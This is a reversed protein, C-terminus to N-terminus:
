DYVPRFGKQAQGGFNVPADNGVPRENHPISGQGQTLALYKSDNSEEGTMTINRLNPMEAFPLYM